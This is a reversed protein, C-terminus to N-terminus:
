SGAPAQPELPRTPSLRRGLFELVQDFSAAVVPDRLNRDFGHPGGPITILQHEVGRRELERAMRVSQEYPVDTDNDGHLLLAPPYQGTVNREPCFPDFAKPNQHPDLGAVALPWLGNQRSYLYFRGRQDGGASESVVRGGVVRYAEEKPVAPMKSYFPDPRSYWDGAIDGYGYFSVLARPRPQLAFGSMLTLYGGASHGVVAIRSPDIRFETAAKAGTWAWADRLDDLIAPLKVEPALRYDISVVVYGAALYRELQVPNIGTRSGMILAGGHIWFIGPRVEDGPLRYVDARIQCEGATKYTFTKPAAPKVFWPRATPDTKLFSLLQRAVKERGSASPHTGDETFDQGAYALGDVRPKVGDAWLYPGWALWPRAPLKGAIQDAILWKVAFGSEYAHPEPNLSSRAYGGYTRSSLYVIQLNEFRDRLLRLNQHLYGYFARAETPFPRSPEQFAQKMWVAQVQQRTAEAQRLRDDVVEWYGSQPDATVEASHGGLAGDVITVPPNRFPDKAAQELFVQFSQTTNSMGISLLVIKGDIPAIRRGADVGAKLHAAPPLFLGGPYLGGEEGQYTGKGLDLLPTLGLSDRPPNAKVFEESRQRREQQLRELRATTEPSLKEGRRVQHRSEVALRIEAERASQATLAAAFLLLGASGIIWAKRIM